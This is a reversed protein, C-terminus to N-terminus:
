QKALDDTLKWPWTPCFFEGIKVQISRKRVSVGTQIYWHRQFAACLTICNIFPAKNNKLTMSWIKLDRPIFFIVLKSGFQANGSQLELKVVFSSKFYHVFSSTIYFLPGIPKWPSGDIELTVPSLLDGNSGFQANESQLELKFIGIGKFHQM